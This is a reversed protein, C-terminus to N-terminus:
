PYVYPTTRGATGAAGPYNIRLDVEMTWDMLRFGSGDIEM